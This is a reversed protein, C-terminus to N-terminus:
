PQELQDRLRPARLASFCTVLKLVEVGMRLPYIRSVSARRLLEGRRELSLRHALRPSGLLLLPALTLAWVSARLGFRMLPPAAQLLEVWYVDPDSESFLPVAGNPSGPLLADCLADRWRREFASWPASM